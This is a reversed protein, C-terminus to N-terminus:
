LMSFACSAFSFIMFLHLKLFAVLYQKQIFLPTADNGTHHILINNMYGNFIPKLDWIGHPIQEFRSM